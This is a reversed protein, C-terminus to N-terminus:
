TIIKKATIIAMTFSNITLIAKHKKSMIYYNKGVKEFNEHPTEEIIKECHAVLETESIDNLDLNKRIRELGLETNRFKLFIMQKEEETVRTKEKM